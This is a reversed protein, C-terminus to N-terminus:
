ASGLMSELDNDSYKERCVPCVYVTRIDVDSSSVKVAITLEDDVYIKCCPCKVEKMSGKEIAEKM